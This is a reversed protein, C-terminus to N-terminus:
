ALQEPRPQTSAVAGRGSAAAELRLGQRGQPGSLRLTTGSDTDRDGDIDSAAALCSESLSPMNSTTRPIPCLRLADERRLIHSSIYLFVAGVQALHMSNGMLLREHAAPIKSREFPLLDAFGSDPSLPWGHATLM